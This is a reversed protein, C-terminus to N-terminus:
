MGQAAWTKMQAINGELITIYEPRRKQSDLYVAMDADYAAETEPRQGQDNTEKIWTDLLGRMEALREAHAPDVALNNLQWPDSERDYLEEEPRPTTFLREAPHGALKGESHLERLRILIDKGDKYANPQLHPRRPYFNRIYAYRGKNVGRLREVTEDCRDRATVVYDRPRADPGFLPRSELHPPLPIGAFYLSTAAMDIHAIDDKRVEGASVRGPAWVIFPVRVGEDYLFQKGRAHSIGHDTLFFVVTNAALGGAELRAMIAGVEQDVYRVSDLYHAWDERMIPDDPYYPPLTIAEPATPSEVPPNRNKGGSLQFQMFFPQDPARGAYDAGDYLDGPYNFNYDTKGPRKATAHEGNCVYYGAEKFYEPISRVPHPLDHTIDGRFSRHNHAGITTQHMGTIMASRSPSCVPCTVYAADFVVGERALRDVNPTSITTEGQYGFHRSMDEVVIWVINPRPQADEGEGRGCLLALAGAGSAQLFTRRRM